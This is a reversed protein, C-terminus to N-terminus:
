QFNKARFQKKLVKGKEKEEDLQKRKFDHEKKMTNIQQKMAERQQKVADMQQKMIVIQQQVVDMNSSGQKKKMTNIHQEMAIKIDFPVGPWMLKLESITNVIAQQLEVSSSQTGAKQQTEKKKSKQM